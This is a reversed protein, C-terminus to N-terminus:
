KRFIVTPLHKPISGVVILKKEKDYLFYIRKEECIRMHLDLEKEVPKGTFGVGYKVKYEKSYERLTADSVPTVEYPRNYKISCRIKMEDPTILGILEDRYDTALFEIADCMSHMDLTNAAIDDIMECTKPHFILKEKFFLDSWAVFDSMKTPRRLISKLREIEADRRELENIYDQEFIKFQSKHHENEKIISNIEEKLRSIKDNKSEIEIEYNRKEDKCRCKIAELNTNYAQVIEAKSKSLNIVKETYREKAKPLFEVNGFSMPKGKCYNQIFEDLNMFFEDLNRKIENSSYYIIEGSFAYPEYVIIDGSKLSLKSNKNFKELHVASITFMQAYGMKYRAISKLEQLIRDRNEYIECNGICGNDKNFTNMKDIVSDILKENNNNTQKEFLLNNMKENSANSANSANSVNSVNSVNSLNRLNENIDSNFNEISLTSIKGKNAGIPIVNARTNSNNISNINNNTCNNNGNNNDNNNGNTNTNSNSNKSCNISQNNNYGKIVGSNIASPKVNNKINDLIVKQAHSNINVKTSPQLFGVPLSFNSKGNENKELDTEIHESLNEVCLLLPMMRLKDKAWDKFREISMVSDLNIMEDVLDFGHRLGFHPNRSLHKVLSLRFVECEHATGVIDSVITRFGCEVTDNVIRYAINTEFMRGLVAQRSASISGPQSGLDPEILQLTWIEDESLWVVEVKYGKDISFSKFDSWSVAEYQVPLPSNLEPPLELDRFRERMWNLTELIAITLVKQASLKKENRAIAHLQYTPYTINRLLKLPQNNFNQGNNNKM